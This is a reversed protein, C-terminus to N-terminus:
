GDENGTAGLRPSCKSRPRLELRWQHKYCGACCPAPCAKDLSSPQLLYNYSPCGHFLASAKPVQGLAAPTTHTHFTAPCITPSPLMHHFSHMLPRRSSRPTSDSTENRQLLSRYIRIKLSTQQIDENTSDVILHFRPFGGPAHEIDASHSTARYVITLPFDSRVEKLESHPPIM